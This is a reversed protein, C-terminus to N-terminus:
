GHRKTLLELHQDHAALHQDHSKLHESHSNLRDTLTENLALLSKITEDYKKLLDNVDELYSVIHEIKEADSPLLNVENIDYNSLVLNKQDM